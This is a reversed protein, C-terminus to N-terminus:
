PIRARGTLLANVAANWAARDIQEGPFKGRIRGLSDIFFTEPVGTTGFLRAVSGDPDRVNPYTIGYQSVFALALSELDRTDIGLVVLGRPRYARWVAELLPTEERCPDCWSAWFNMVVAHGRLARLDVPAGTLAPLRLPPVPPSDGHALATGIELTQRHRQMAAAMVGVILAAPLLLAVWSVWASRRTMTKV